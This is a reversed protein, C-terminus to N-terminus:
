YSIYCGRNKSKHENKRQYEERLTTMKSVEVMINHYEINHLNALCISNYRMIEYASDSNVLGTSVIEKMKKLFQDALVKYLTYPQCNKRHFKNFGPKEELLTENNYKRILTASKENTDDDNIQIGKKKAISLKDEIEKCSKCRYYHMTVNDKIIAKQFNFIYVFTDISEASVNVKKIIQETYHRQSLLGIIETGNDKLHRYGDVDFSIKKIMSDKEKNVKEIEEVWIKYVTRRFIRYTTPTAIDLEHCQRILSQWNINIVTKNYIDSVNKPINKVIIDRALKTPHWIVFRNKKIEICGEYEEMNAKSDNEEEFESKEEMDSINEIDLISSQESILSINSHEDCNINNGREYENDNSKISDLNQSIASFPRKNKNRSLTRNCVNVNEEIYDDSVNHEDFFDVYKDPINILKCYKQYRENEHNNTGEIISTFLLNALKRIETIKLKNNIVMAENIINDYNVEISEQQAIKFHKFCLEELAGHPAPNNIIKRKSMKIKNIIFYKNEKKMIGLIPNSDNTNHDNTSIINKLSIFHNNNFICINVRLFFSAAALYTSLDFSISPDLIKFYDLKQRLVHIFLLMGNKSSKPFFYKCFLDCINEDGGIEKNEYAEEIICNTKSDIGKIKQRNRPEKVHAHIGAYHGIFMTVEKNLDWDSKSYPPSLYRTFKMKNEIKSSGLNKYLQNVNFKLFNELKGRTSFTAKKVIQYYGNEDKNVYIIPWKNIKEQTIIKLQFMPLLINRPIEYPKVLMIIVNLYISVSYEEYFTNKFQQEFKLDSDIKKKVDALKEEFKKTAKAADKFMYFSLLDKLNKMKEEYMELSSFIMLDKHKEENEVFEMNLKQKILNETGFDESINKLPFSLIEKTYIKSAKPAM